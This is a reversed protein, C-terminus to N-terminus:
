WNDCLYSDATHRGQHLIQGPAGMCACAMRKYMTNPSSLHTYLQSACPIIQDTETSRGVSLIEPWLLDAWPTIGDAM